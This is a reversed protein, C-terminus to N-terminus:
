KDFEVSESNLLVQKYEQVLDLIKCLRPSSAESMIYASKIEGIANEIEKIKDVTKYENLEDFLRDNELQLTENEEELTCLEALLSENEVRLEEIIDEILEDGDIMDENMMIFSYPVYGDFSMEGITLIGHKCNEAGMSLGEKRIKKYCV